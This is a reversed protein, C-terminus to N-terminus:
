QTSVVNYNVTVTVTGDGDILPPGFNVIELDLNEISSSPDIPDPQLKVTQNSDQDLFGATNVPDFAVIPSNSDYPGITIILKGHGGAYHQTGYNYQLTASVPNFAMGQGPAPILVVPADRLGQLQAVSLTVTATQQSGNRQAYLGTALSLLIIKVITTRM